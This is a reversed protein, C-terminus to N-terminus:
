LQDPIIGKHVIANILAASPVALVSSLVICVTSVMVPSFVIPAPHQCRCVGVFGEVRRCFARRREVIEESETWTCNIMDADTHLKCHSHTLLNLKSLLKCTLSTTMYVAM